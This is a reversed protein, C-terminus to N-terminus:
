GVRLLSARSPCDGGRPRTAATRCLPRCDAPDRAGSDRM